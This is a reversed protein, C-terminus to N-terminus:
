WGSPNSCRCTSLHFSFLELSHPAPIAASGEHGQSWVPRWGEQIQSRNTAWEQLQYLAAKPTQQELLFAVWSTGRM